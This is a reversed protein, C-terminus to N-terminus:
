CRPPQIPQVPMERVWEWEESKVPVQSAPAPNEQAAREKRVEGDKADGKYGGQFLLIIISWNKALLHTPHFFPEGDVFCTHAEM